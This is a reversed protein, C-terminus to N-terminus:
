TVRGIRLQLPQALLKLESPANSGQRGWDNLPHAATASARHADDVQSAPRPRDCLPKATGPITKCGNM